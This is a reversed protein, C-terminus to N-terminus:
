CVQGPGWGSSGLPAIVVLFEGYFLPIEEITCHMYTTIYCGLM